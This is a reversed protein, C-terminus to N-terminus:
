GQIVTFQEPWVTLNCARGADWLLRDATALVIPTGALRQFELAAALHVADYARLSHVPALLEAEQLVNPSPPVRVLNQWDAEFRSLVAQHQDADIRNGRRAAAFTAILEVRTLTVMGM